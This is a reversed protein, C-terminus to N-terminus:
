KLKGGCKRCHWSHEGNRGIRQCKECLIDTNKQGAHYAAKVLFDIAEFIKTTSSLDMGTTLNKYEKSKSWDEFKM